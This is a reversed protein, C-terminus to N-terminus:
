IRALEYYKRVHDTERYGGSAKDEAAVAKKPSGTLAVAAAGATGVTLGKLFERRPLSGTKKDVRM